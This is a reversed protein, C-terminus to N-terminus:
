ARRLARGARAGTHRGNEVVSQGNVLVHVVGAPYRHPDDFTAVDKVAAADFAVLDAKRGRAVRGRDRIGIQDAPMSTMKRVATPLDFLRRERSYHGLVRPFCGYSRPHPRMEAAKGRPAMSVGDSGVMVLPHRLVMEVNEPSMGHGVYSASGSEEEIVRLLADVPKVKWADAIERMNKGVLGRNAQTSVRSIVILEYGGPEKPVRADIEKRIRERHARDKLRAMMAAAGGDHVWADLFITLTTSYATYPYADALVDVGERRAAEILDLAAAQNNWYLKGAAKLHSVEVRAGSRRGIDLCENVAELLMSEENRTHSAYLGGHRSVIRAMAVIEDTPTYQGPIYELGTSMGFAGQEMGAEVVRLVGALEDATLARDVSGIANDRITGQGLLLAQNVSMGSKDLRALYSAVDSWDADIGQEKHGRRAEEASRGELPAASGGCNGTLETTVGQYARSECGPYALVDPDSHSHIDIFGPCVHLGTVDVVRAAQGPAITDIAKITDGAIGVDAPFGPQGTGDLVTGGKLVVDFAPAAEIVGGRLAALGLLGRGGEELFRRRSKPRPM